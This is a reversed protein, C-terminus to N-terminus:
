YKLSEGWISACLTQTSNYSCKWNERGEVNDHSLLPEYFYLYYVSGFSGRLVFYSLVWDIAFDDELLVLDGAHAGLIKNYPNRGLYCMKLIFLFNSVVYTM